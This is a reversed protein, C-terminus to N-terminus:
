YQVEIIYIFDKVSDVQEPFTLNAFNSKTIISQPISFSEIINCLFTTKICYSVKESWDLKSYVIGVIEGRNNFIPGGNNGLNLHTSIQYTSMKGDFGTKAIITGSTIKIENETSGKIPYGIAFVSSGLDPM